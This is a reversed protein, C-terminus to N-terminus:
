LHDYDGPRVDNNRMLFAIPTGLTVGDLMGSLWEVTDSENRSTGLPTSGPRRRDLEQQVADTDLALGAPCGEIVGGIAPGHSAGFSILRFQTGFISGSM